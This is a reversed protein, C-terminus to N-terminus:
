KKEEKEEDEKEATETGKIDLTLKGTTGAKQTFKFSTRAPGAFRERLQDPGLSGDAKWFPKRLEVTVAYNGAPVGDFAAYTSLRLRGDADVFGDARPVGPGKDKGHLVVYAGA